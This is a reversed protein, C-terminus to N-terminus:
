TRAFNALSLIRIFLGLDKVLSAHAFFFEFDFDLRQFYVGNFTLERIKLFPKAKTNSRGSEAWEQQEINAQNSCHLKRM